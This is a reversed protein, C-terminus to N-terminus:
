SSAGTLPRRAALRVAQVKPLLCRPLCPDFSGTPGSPAHRVSSAEAEVAGPLALPTARVLVPRLPPSVSGTLWADRRAAQLRAESACTLPVFPAHQPVLRSGEPDLASGFCLCDSEDELLLRSRLRMRRPSHQGQKRMM